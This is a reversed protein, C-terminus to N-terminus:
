GGTPEPDAVPADPEVVEGGVVKGGFVVWPEVSGCGHAGQLVQGCCGSREVDKMVGPKAESSGGCGCGSMFCGGMFLGAFLLGNTVDIKNFSDEM